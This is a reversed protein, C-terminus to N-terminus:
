KSVLEWFLLLDKFYVGHNKSRGSLNHMSWYERGGHKRKGTIVAVYGTDKKKWVQGRRIPILVEPMKM